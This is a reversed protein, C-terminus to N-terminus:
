GALLFLAPIAMLAVPFKSPEESGYPPADGTYGPDNVGPVDTMKQSNFGSGGINRAFRNMINRGSRVAVRRVMGKM